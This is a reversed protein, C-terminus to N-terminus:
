LLAARGRLLANMATRSRLAVRILGPLQWPKLLLSLLVAGIAPRGEENLGKLAAEPLTDSATDAIARIVIFPLGHREAAEAVHHSEMDVAVAGTEGFLAGKEARTAAAVSRGAVTGGQAAVKQLIRRRWDPDCSLRRGDALVVDDAIVLDGPELDPDLAGAIGFSVLAEAGGVVLAEVKRKTAEAHGGGAVIIYGLGDLLRAESLMGTVAGVTM